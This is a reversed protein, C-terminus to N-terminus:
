AIANAAEIFARIKEPDKQGPSSEVGSSVDVAWPQTARIAQAVNTADLGGALIMPPLDDMGGHQEAESLLDWNFREGTGGPAHPSYTDLLVAELSSDPPICVLWEHIAVISEANRIRFAKICPIKIEGMISPLEHGHLQAIAIGTQEATDNIQEATADVFVGVAPVQGQLAQVIQRARDHSVYRSSEAFVLGIFDAGLEAAAQAQAPDTLGCIKVHTKEM